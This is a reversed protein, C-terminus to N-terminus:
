VDNGHCHARADARQAIHHELSDCALGVHVLHDADESVQEASLHESLEVPSLAVRSEPFLIESSPHTWPRKKDGLLDNRKDEPM